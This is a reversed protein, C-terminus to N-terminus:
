SEPPTPIESTPLIVASAFSDFLAKNTETRTIKFYGVSKGDDDVVFDSDECDYAISLEASTITDEKTASPETPQSAKANYYYHLTPIEEGTDADAENTMYFICHPSFTGNDSYGGNEAVKYGLYALYTSPIYRLAATVARRKVGKLSAWVKDDAYVKTDDQTFEANANVLGPIMTPTGFSKVGLTDVIPAIGFNKNGYVIKNGM